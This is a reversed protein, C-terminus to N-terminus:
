TGNKNNNKKKPFFRENKVTKKFQRKQDKKFFSDECEALDLTVRTVTPRSVSWGVLTKSSTFYIERGWFDCCDCVLDCVCDCM